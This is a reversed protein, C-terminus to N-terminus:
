LYKRLSFLYSPNLSKIMATTSRRFPKLIYSFVFLGMAQQVLTAIAAGTIGLVPILVLNLSINVTVGIINNYLRYKQLNESVMWIGRAMGLSMFTGTWINYVLAEYADIYDAGFLFRILAAGFCM